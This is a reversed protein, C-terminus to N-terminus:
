RRRSSRRRSSATGRRADVREPQAPWPTVSSCSMLASGSRWGSRRRAAGRRDALLRVVDAADAQKRSTARCRSCRRRRASAAHGTRTRSTASTSSRRVRRAEADDAVVVLGVDHLADDEHAVAALRRRRELADVLADLVDPLVVDQRRPHVDLRVVVAAVEHLERRVRHELVESTPMTSTAITSSRKRPWARAASMVASLMGSASSTAKQPCPRCAARRRVEDREARDVEADDDVRGDDHHLVDETVEPRVPLPVILSRMRAAARSTARGIVNEVSMM